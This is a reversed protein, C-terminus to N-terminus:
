ELSGEGPLAQQHRSAQMPTMAAAPAAVSKGRVNRGGKLSPVSVILM